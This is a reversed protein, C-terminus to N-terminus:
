NDCSGGLCDFLNHEPINKHANMRDTANKTKCADTPTALCEFLNEHECLINM